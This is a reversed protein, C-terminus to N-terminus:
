AKHASARLVESAALRMSINEARSRARIEGLAEEESKGGRMLWGKAREVTRRCELDYRLEAAERALIQEERFRVVAKEIVSPLVRRDVPEILRGQVPLSAAEGVPDPECPASLVLIPIPRRRYMEQGADLTDDRPPHVGLIALNPARNFFLSLATCSDAAPLVEHGLKALDDGLESRITSEAEAILITLKKM